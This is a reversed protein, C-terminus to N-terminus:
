KVPTGTGGHGDLRALDLTQDGHRLVVREPCRFAEVDMRVTNTPTLHVDIQAPAGEPRPDLMDYDAQYSAETGRVAISNADYKLFFLRCGPAFEIGIADAPGLHGGCYAWRGATGAMISLKGDLDYPERPTSDCHGECAGTRLANLENDIWDGCGYASTPAADFRALPATGADLGGAGLEVHRVECAPAFAAVLVAVAGLVLARRELLKTAVRPRM